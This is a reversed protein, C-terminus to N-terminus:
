YRLILAIRGHPMLEGDEVFVVRGGKALVTNIVEDVADDMVGPSTPSDVELELEGSDALRAPVHYGEEVVLTAGRGLSAHRWVDGITSAARRQGIATELEDLVTRRRDAFGKAAEPWVLQGLDHATLHDYNGVL